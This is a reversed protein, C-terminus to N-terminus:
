VQARGLGADLRLIYGNPRHKSHAFRHEVGNGGHPHYRRTTLAGFAGRPAGIPECLEVPIKM